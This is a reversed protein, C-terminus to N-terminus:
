PTSTAPKAPRCKADVRRNWRRLDRRLQKVRRAQRKKAKGHARKLKRQAKKLRASLVKRTRTASACAPSAAPSVAAVHGGAPTAVPAPDAPDGGQQAPSSQFAIPIRILDRDLELYCNGDVVNPHYRTLYLYATRGVTEFNRSTSSPDILSPNGLPTDDGCQFSHVLVTSMMLKREDWHVLDDSTTYYIGPPGDAPVLMGVLLFKGLHTSYTLSSTMRNVQDIGVPKCVHASPQESTEVYPNIFRVDFASGGWARWSKPDALNNTRMVCAGLQQARTQETWFLTYYYGDAPRRVINSPSFVGFPGAGRAYTYPAAAVLHNPAAPHSYTAGGNTSTAFGISNMWCHQQTEWASGCGPDYRWGQYEHHLLAYVTLGDPTYTAGIWSKDDYKSPDTNGNSSMVIPCQHQLNDLSGGIMRRTTFHSAILQIGGQLDRFARAPVDPIDAPECADNTWDFVTQEGGAQRVDPGDFSYAFASPACGLLALLMIAVGLVIGRHGDAGASGARRSM